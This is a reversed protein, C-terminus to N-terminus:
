STRAREARAMWERLENRVPWELQVHQERLAERLDQAPVDRPDIGRDGAMGAATGAAQGLQMMTRSLRCSSAAISSFSSARSAMLVNRMGKAVLCRLPVGYPETLERCGGGEGHLDMAHDAIAITDAHNQGSLGALLDHETLVYEGVVRREERLGVEPAIWSLRYRRFEPFDTQVYHWHALVRRRCEEYLGEGLSTIEHSEVTPLMNMIYGGRPAQVASVSPFRERWWCEAPIDDPLPEIGVDHGPVPGPGVSVPMVRYILTAANRATSANGEHCPCEQGHMEPADPEGFRERADRGAMTECGASACLAGHGTCD